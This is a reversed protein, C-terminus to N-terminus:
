YTELAEGITDLYEEFLVLDNHGGGPVSIMTKTDKKISEFLREGQKYKIVSDDTGHYITIPCIVKNIYQYTPFKYHLLSKVPLIPFKSKAVEEISYFPSELLLNKPQNRSAVFTAFTTGLSRGYLIIENESYHQKAYEYWLESDSYLAEMSRKGTSKGYGRYDMVIVSYQLDVFFQTIEGWRQLDGANGHYYLIAGKSNEVKFHLGNLRAGDEADLFLEEFSSDMVYSHEQPLQTPLFILNEQFFYIVGCLLGYINLLVFSIILARKLRSVIENQV